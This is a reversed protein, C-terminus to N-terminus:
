MQSRSMFAAVDEKTLSFWEGNVRKAAFRKHWYAEIGIVDDTKIKHVVEVPFPLQLRIQNLRKGFNITKGIKFYKGAKLLYVDGHQSDVSISTTVTQRCKSNKSSSGQHKWARMQGRFVKLRHSEDSHYTQFALVLTEFSLNDAFYTNRAFGNWFEIRFGTYKGHTAMLFDGVAESKVLVVFSITAGLQSLVRKITKDTPAAIKSNLSTELHM